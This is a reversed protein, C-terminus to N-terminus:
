GWLAPSPPHVYGDRYVLGDPRDDKLLLPGDLDVYEAFPALLMAPAMALSTGVMCGIMMKMRAAQANRALNLAETLGGSKDLKINIMGYRGILRPLDDSTHVSEDACLLVPSDFDDLAADDDAPLPQEIMEVGLEALAPVVEGLLGMDWAENADAILRADPAAARVAGMRGIVDHADLKVKILPAAAIEAAAQGMAEADGLSITQATLAPVPEPVEALQWAPQGSTKAELDWLAADIANRAAGPATVYWLVDRAMDGEVALKQQDLERRVEEISEGYRPYPVCEGRGVHGGAAIEVVLVDAATKTGRAITFPRALPWSEETVTFKRTSM